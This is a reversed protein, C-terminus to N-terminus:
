GPVAQQLAAIQERLAAAAASCADARRRGPAGAAARLELRAARAQLRRLAQRAVAQVHGVGGGNIGNACSSSAPPELPAVEAQWGLAQGEADGAGVADLLAQLQGALSLPAAPQESVAASSASAPAAPSQATPGAVAAAAAAEFGPPPGRAAQGAGAAAGVGPPRYAPRAAGPRSLASCGAAPGAAPAQPQSSTGAAAAEAAEKQAAAQAEPHSDALLRMRLTPGHARSGDASLRVWVRQMPRFAALQRGSSSEVVALQSPQGESSGDHGEAAASTCAATVPGSRSHLASARLAAM